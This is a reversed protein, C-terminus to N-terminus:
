REVGDKFISGEKNLEVIKEVELFPLVKELDHASPRGERSIFNKLDNKNKLSSYFIYDAIYVSLFVDKKKKLFIEYNKDKYNKKFKIIKM